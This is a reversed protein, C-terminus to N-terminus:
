PMRAEGVRVSLDQPKWGLQGFAPVLHLAVGSVVKPHDREVM